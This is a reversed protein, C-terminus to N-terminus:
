RKIAKVNACRMGASIVASPSYYKNGGASDVIYWDGNSGIGAIGIYHGGRTFPAAGAGSTHIMWGDRLYRDITSIDCTNIEEYQLNYRKALVETITWSSGVWSGGSYAHQEHKGAFDATEDPMINQGLLATAMMAFSTPGCGSACISSGRKGHIGDPGYMLSSWSAGCQFYQPIGEGTYPSNVSTGCVDYSVTEITGTSTSSAYKNYVEVAAARRNETGQWGGNAYQGIGIENALNKAEQSNLPQSGGVNREVAVMFLEAFIRAGEANNSISDNLASNIYYAFRKEPAAFRDNILYDLEIEIAYDNIDDPINTSKWYNGLENVASIMNSSNSQYLGYYTGSGSVAFPNYSSEVKLNGLIGAIAAPNNSIGNINASVFFNWIKAENDSGSVTGAYGGTATCNGSPDWYYSGNADLMDLQADTPIASAPTASTLIIIGCTIVNLWIKCRSKLIKM